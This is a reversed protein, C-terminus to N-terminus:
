ENRLGPRVDTGVSAESYDFEYSTVWISGSFPAELRKAGAIGAVGMLILLLPFAGSCSTGALRINHKSVVRGRVGWLISLALALEGALTLTVLSCESSIRDGRFRLLLWRRADFIAVSCIDSVIGVGVLCLGM